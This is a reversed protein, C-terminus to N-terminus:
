QNVIEAAAHDGVICGTYIGAGQADLARSQCGKDRTNRPKVAAIRGCLM